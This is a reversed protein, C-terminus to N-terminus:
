ATQATGGDPEIGHERLLGRLRDVEHHLRQIEAIVAQIDGGGTLLNELRLKGVRLERERDRLAAAGDLDGAEFAAEKQRRVQDLEEATAALDDALEARLDARGSRGTLLDLVQERVRAHGAGLGTLVQAGVGDGEALLGLLVHETGIYTHGLALAERLSLELAKKASPTFPLHGNRSGQGRGTIEEVRGRAQERSIGLAELAKAAVGQGEYLLALLLHETSVYDHGLLRAEEQALYVAQRARDTFRGFMGQPQRRMTAEKIRMALRAPRGPMPAEKVRAAPQGAPRLRPALREAVTNTDLTGIALGEVLAAVPGPPDPDMEQGNLALFQLVAALAVQQNGRRLPQGRVLADLLVAAQGALDRQDGAQRAQALAFEAATADLVDMVQGTDLGLTRSAIVVLDAVELTIM